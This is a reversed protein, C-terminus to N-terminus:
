REAEQGGLYVEVGELRELVALDAGEAAAASDGNGADSGLGGGIVEAGGAATNPLGGIGSCGPQGDGVALEVGARHARDRDGFGVGVDDVGAHAFGAHAAISGIAVADVFGDIAAFCPLVHTERVGVVDTANDDMGAIGVDDVDGREAMEASGVVLAADVAGGIAAFGPLLTSKRSRSVPATSRAM